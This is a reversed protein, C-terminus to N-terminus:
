IFHVLLLKMLLLKGDMECYIIKEFKHIPNLSWYLQSESPDFLRIQFEEEKKKAILIQFQLKLNFWRLLFM